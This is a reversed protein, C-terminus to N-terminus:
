GPWPFHVAALLLNLTQNLDELDAVESPSHSYRLPFSVAAVPFGANVFPLPAAATSIGTAIERQLPINDVQALHELHRRLGVHAIFGQGRGRIHDMIKIAPGKGLGVESYSSGLDPTDYTLTADVGLIWDPQLDFAVPQAGVLLNEEQVVFALYLDCALESGFIEEALHVLLACGARDDLAKAAVRGQLVQFVPKCTVPSGIEIGLALANAQTRVGIDVFLRGLDAPAGGPAIHPPTVGVVGPILGSDTWIQVHQGALVNWAAGGVRELQLFGDPLIKRVLYGTEDLHAVLLVRPGKGPLHAILNGIKDSRTQIGRRSFCHRIVDAVAAEFGSVGQAACLNELDSLFADIRM